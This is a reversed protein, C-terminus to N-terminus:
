ADNPTLNYSAMALRSRAIPIHQCRMQIRLIIPELTNVSFFNQGLRSIKFSRDAAESIDFAMTQLTNPSFHIGAAQGWVRRFRLVKTGWSLLM